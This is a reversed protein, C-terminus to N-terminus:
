LPGSDQIIIQIDQDRERRDREGRERNGGVEIERDGGLRNRELM